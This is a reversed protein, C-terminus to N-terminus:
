LTNNEIGKAEFVIGTIGIGVSHWQVMANEFKNWKDRLASFYICYYQSIKWKRWRLMLEVTYIGIALLNKFTM